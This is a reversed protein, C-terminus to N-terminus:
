KYDDPLDNEFLVVCDRHLINNLISKQEQMSDAYYVKVKRDKESFVGNELAKKNTKNMIIVADCKIAIQKGLKYNLEYQRQGLEVIGPTVIIREKDFLTLVNLAECFGDVNSNYSDDIVFPNKRLIELRHKTPKLSKVADKIQKDNLGLFKAVMVSLSINKLMHRGLLLTQLEIKKDEISLEFHLGKNSLVECKIMEKTLAYKKCSAKNFLSATSENICDFFCTGNKVLSECLEFKTELVRDLSGFTEIHQEGVSTLIGIDPKLMDCLEKIDGKHRAGMEIILVECDPKMNELVTKCLGMPTNYNEPSVCVKYNASLIKALANKTSTKGYSGTIAIKIGKFNELKKKTLNIYHRKILHEFPCLIIHIFLFIILLTFLNIFFDLFIIWFNNILLLILLWLLYEIVLFIVSFRLMRKTLVLKNKEKKVFVKDFNEFLLKINYGKLQYIRLVPSLLILYFCAFFIPLVLKM